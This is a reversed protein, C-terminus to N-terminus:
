RVLHLDTQRRFLWRRDGAATVQAEEEQRCSLREGNWEPVPVTAQLEISYWTSPRLPVDGRVPLTAQNDWRGILPGAGHGHDGIPHTYISGDIGETRMRDLANSLIANGSLGPEMEGLLIDQLRNSTRLCARVGEPAEVEGAGLVYGLHQTDTRLGMAVVGFDVWLVDGREIVGETFGGGDGARDYNVSPHFWVTMGLEQVTQRLWWQVDSTTTTGPEIVLSSFAEAILAHVTEQIAEYRPLMGPVRTAIYDLALRPERRIRTRYAGLAREIAEREGAHLGDSFAQHEDINLVINAPDRDEVIEHLLRWQEGGWLEAAEGGPAPRASRYSEYMGGQTGGGLAIREVGMGPGRDYFVFISRRRAAFSTPSTISWFVPDEAYERMSLIWMSVGHERMLAPLVRDLRAEVWAQREEAQARLTPLARIQPVALPSDQADLSQPVGLVVSVGLLLGLGLVRGSRGRM